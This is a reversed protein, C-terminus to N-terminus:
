FDFAFRMAFTDVGYDRENNPVTATPKVAGAFPGGEIEAHAYQATIRVYDIPQWILSALYGTQSGGRSTSTGSGGSRLVARNLDLYDYRLNVGIAGIGGENIPKLVKTRDWEGKKYGRTEGTLWYGAEAYFSWFEPDSLLRNTTGASDGAALVDTPTLVNPKVWQGEAVVHFSGFVGAAEVGIVDDSKADFTNTDVFRVDTTTVFPRARYRFNLAQSNFERHQYNVGFHLQNSGMMPAYVLRAGFLWEDNNVDSNITDNFVGARFLLDGSDVGVALGLRRAHGFADNMQAREMFTIHRSSTIQELSQFTEFHGARVSLPGKGKWELFVDAWSVASNAFDAEAKYNFGGPLAGEVGLRARRVRSNFGLAKSPSAALYDAETLFPNSVYGADYMLRGRIKFKFGKDKDAWEPAGKWTPSASAVGKKLQEIQAQLADVQAQLLSLDANQAANIEEEPVVESTVEPQAAEPQNALAPTSACLAIIGVGLLMSLKNTRM